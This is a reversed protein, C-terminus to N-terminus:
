NEVKISDVKYYKFAHHNFVHWNGTLVLTKMVIFRLIEAWQATIATVM